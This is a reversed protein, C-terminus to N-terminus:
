LRKELFHISILGDPSLGCSVERYGLKRWLHVRHHIREARKLIAM